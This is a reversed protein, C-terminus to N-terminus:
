IAFVEFHTHLLRTVEMLSMTLNCVRWSGILRLQFLERGGTQGLDVWSQSWPSRSNSFCLLTKPVTNFSSRTSPATSLSKTHAEKKLLLFALERSKPKSGLQQNEWTTKSVDLSVTLGPFACTIQAGLPLTSFSYTSCTRSSSRIILSSRMPTTEFTM